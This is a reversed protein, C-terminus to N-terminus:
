NEECYGRCDTVWGDERMGVHDIGVPAAVPVEREADTSVAAEPGKECPKLQLDGKAFPM